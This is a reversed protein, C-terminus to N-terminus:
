PKAVVFSGSQAKACRSSMFTGNLSPAATRSGTLDIECATASDTLALTLDTNASWATGTVTGSDDFAPETFSTSWRGGLAEQAGKGPPTLILSMQTITLQLTGTGAVDSTITGSWTGALDAPPVLPVLPVTTASSSCAVLGM